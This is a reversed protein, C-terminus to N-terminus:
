VARGIGHFQRCRYFEISVNNKNWGREVALERMAAASAKDVGLAEVAEWVAGCVTGKSPRKIGNQEARGKELTWKKEVPVAVALVEAEEADVLKRLEANADAVCCAVALANNQANAIDATLAAAEALTAQFEMYLATKAEATLTKANM